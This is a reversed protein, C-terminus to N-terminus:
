PTRRLENQAEILWQGLQILSEADFQGDLTITEPCEINWHVYPGNTSTVLGNEYKLWDLFTIYVEYDIAIMLVGDQGSGM